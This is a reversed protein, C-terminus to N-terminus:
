EDTKEADNLVEIRDLMQNVAESIRKVYFEHTIIEEGLMIDLAQITGAVMCFCDAVFRQRSDIAPYNFSTSMHKKM